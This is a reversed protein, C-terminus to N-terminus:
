SSNEEVRRPDGQRLGIVWPAGEGQFMKRRGEAVWGELRLEFMVAEPFGEGVGCIPILDKNETRLTVISSLCKRCLVTLTM